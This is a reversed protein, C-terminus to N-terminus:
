VDDGEINYVMFIINRTDRGPILPHGPPLIKFGLFGFPKICAQKKLCVIVNQCGSEEAKDLFAIFLEKSYEGPELNVLNLYINGKYIVGNLAPKFINPDNVTLKQREFVEM